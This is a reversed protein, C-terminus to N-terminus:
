RNFGTFLLEKNIRESTVCDLKFIELERKLLEMSINDGRINQSVYILGVVQIVRLEILM